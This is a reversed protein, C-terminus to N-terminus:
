SGTLFRVGAAEAIRVLMLKRSRNHRGVASSCIGGAEFRPIGLPRRILSDPARSEKQFSLTIALGYESSRRTRAIAITSPPAERCSTAASRSTLGLETILQSRRQLSSPLEAAFGLPPLTEGNSFCAPQNNASITSCGSRVNSSATAAIRLRRITPLRLAKDRNKM